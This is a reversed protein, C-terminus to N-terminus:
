LTLSLWTFFRFKLGQGTYHSVELEREREGELINDASVLLFAQVDVGVQHYCSVVGRRWQTLPSYTSLMSKLGQGM